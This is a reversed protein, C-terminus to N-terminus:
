ENVLPRVMCESDTSFVFVELEAKEFQDQAQWNYFCSSVSVVRGNIHAVVNFDSWNISDSLTNYTTENPSINFTQSGYTERGVGHTSQININLHSRNSIRLVKAFSSASLIFLVLVTLAKM